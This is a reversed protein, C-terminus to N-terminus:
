SATQQERDMLWRMASRTLESASGLGLKKKINAQYTEVTKVSIGLREAIGSAGVGCGLFEYVQLERDSLADIGAAASTSPRNAITERMRKQMAASLYTKGGLVTQVADLIRSLDELKSVYGQAGAAIARLAYLAEDHASLVLFKTGLTDDRRTVQKILDLGNAGPLSIDVIVLDPREADIMRMAEAACGTSSLVSLHPEADIIAELSVRVLPHDDVILIRAKRTEKM